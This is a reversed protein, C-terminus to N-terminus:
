NGYLWWCGRGTDAQLMGYKENSDHDHAVSEKAICMPYLIDPHSPKSVVLIVALIGTDLAIGVWKSQHTAIM